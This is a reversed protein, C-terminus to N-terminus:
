LGAYRAGLLTTLDPFSSFYPFCFYDKYSYFHSSKLHHIELTLVLDYYKYIICIIISSM